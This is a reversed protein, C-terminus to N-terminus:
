HGKEEGREIKVLFLSLLYIQPVYIWFLRAVELNETKSCAATCILFLFVHAPKGDSKGTRLLDGCDSRGETEGGREERPDSCTLIVNETRVLVFPASTTDSMLDSTQPSWPKYLRAWLSGTFSLRCDTLPNDSKMKHHLRKAALRFETFIMTQIWLIM